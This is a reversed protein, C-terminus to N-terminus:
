GVSDASGLSAEPAVPVRQRAPIPLEPFRAKREPIAGQPRFWLTLIVLAGICMNRINSILNPDGPIAPLFRTAENFLVAVLFSGVIAGLNNARGGVILAAWIVFTEGTSWGAPSLASVYALTLVGGLGVFMCGIVMALMRVRFADKGFAEAVDMDERIARMTRGLPSRYIREAVFWCFLMIVACIILFYWTYTNPNFGFVSTYPQPVGVLGAGGDFIKNDNNVIGYVISGSALTVIALYDSRLRRLAVLGILSGLAGAAAVGIVLAVPWPLNLGLIYFIESGRQPPGLVAVGAFYGAIAMFTIVTFDLIGAYGFQINLGLCFINYIFFYVGLTAIYGLVAGM